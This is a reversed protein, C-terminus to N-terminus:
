QAPWGVQTDYQVSIADQLLPAQRVAYQMDTGPVLLVKWYTDSDKEVVHGEFMLSFCASLVFGDLACGNCHMHLLLMVDLGVSLGQLSCSLLM